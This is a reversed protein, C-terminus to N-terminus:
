VAIINDALRAYSCNSRMDLLRWLGWRRREQMATNAKIDHSLEFMVPLMYVAPPGCFLGTGKLLKEREVKECEMLNALLDNLRECCSRTAAETVLKGGCRRM